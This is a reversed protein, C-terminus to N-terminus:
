PTLRVPRHGNGRPCNHGEPDMPEGCMPCPKRGAAVLDAIKRSLVRSQGRRLFCRLMPKAEEGEVDTQREFFQITFTDREEIYGLALQGARLDLDIQDPFPLPDVDEDAARPRTAPRGRGALRRRRGTAGEGAV